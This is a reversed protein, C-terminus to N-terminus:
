TSCCRSARRSRRPWRKIPTKKGRFPWVYRRRLITLHTNCSDYKEDPHRGDGTSLGGVDRFRSFDELGVEVRDALLVDVFVERVVEVRLPQHAAARGSEGGAPLLEVFRAPREGLLKF